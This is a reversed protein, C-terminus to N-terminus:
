CYCLLSRVLQRRSSLTARWESGACDDRAALCHRRAHPKRGCPRIFAHARLGDVRYTQPNLRTIVPLWSPMIALPDIANSAFCLPMTLAQGIGMFRERTKVIRTISLSFTSVSAAGLMVFLM